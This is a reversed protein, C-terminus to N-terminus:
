PKEKRLKEIAEAMQKKLPIPRGKEDKFELESKGDYGRAELSATYGVEGKMEPDTSVLSASCDLRQLRGEGDTALTVGAKSKSWDFAGQQAQGEMLKALDEGALALEVTGPKVLRATGPSKALLKLIEDPNQFGRGAGPFGAEDARAWIGLVDYIWATETGIRVIKKVDGGTASYDLYLVGPAAWVCIGKYDLTNGKPPALRATWGVEYSKRGRTRAVAHEIVSKPDKPDLPREQPAPAPAAQCAALVTVAVWLSKM